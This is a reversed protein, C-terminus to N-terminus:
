QGSIETGLFQLLARSFRTPQALHASHGAEPIVVHRANPISYNLAAAVVQFYPIEHDGHIILVPMRLGRLQNMRAAPTRGSPAHSELLDRGDYRWRQLYAAAAPPMPTPYWLLPHRGIVSRVSDMGQERAIRAFDPFSDPGNWPVGLGAPPPSGYLTLTKVRDPFAVAFALAVSAGQSHGVIHAARVGLSDLLIALDSPDASVDPFGTSQGWGRRDYRVLKYHASLGPVLADWYGLDNTYGHILVIPEGRGRVDYHIRADGVSVSQAFVPSAATLALLSIVVGQHRM